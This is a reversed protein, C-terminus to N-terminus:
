YTIPFKAVNTNRIYILRKPIGLQIAAMAFVGHNLCYEELVEIDYLPTLKPLLLPTHECKKVFTDKVTKVARKTPLIIEMKAMDFPNKTQKLVFDVLKLAFDDALNLTYIM